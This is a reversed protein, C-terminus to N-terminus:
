PKKQTIRWWPHAAGQRHVKSLQQLLRARESPTLGWLIHRSESILLALTLGACLGLGISALRHYVLAFRVATWTFYQAWIAYEARLSWLSWAGVTLWLGLNLWWWHRMTQQRLAELAQETDVDDLDPRPETM